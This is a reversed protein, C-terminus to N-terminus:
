EKNNLALRLFMLNWLAVQVQMTSSLSARVSKKASKGTESIKEIHVAFCLLITPAYRLWLGWVWYNLINEYWRASVKTTEFIHKIRKSFKWCTKLFYGRTLCERISNLVNITNSPAIHETYCRFCLLSLSTETFYFVTGVYDPFSNNACKM